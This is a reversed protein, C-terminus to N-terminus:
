FRSVPDSLVDFACRYTISSDDRGTWPSRSVGLIPGRATFTLFVCRTYTPSDWGVRRGRHIEPTDCTEIYRITNGNVATWTGNTVAAKMADALRTQTKTMAREESAM